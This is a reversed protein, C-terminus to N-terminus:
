CNPIPYWEWDPILVSLDLTGEAPVRIAVNIRNWPNNGSRWKWRSLADGSPELFLWLTEFNEVPFWPIQFRRANERSGGRCQLIYIFLIHEKIICDLIASPRVPITGSIEPLAYMVEIDVWIKSCTFCLKLQVIIKTINTISFLGTNYLTFNIESKENMCKNKPHGEAWHIWQTPYITSLSTCHIIGFFCTKIQVMAANHRYFMCRSFRTKSFDRQLQVNLSELAKWFRLDLKYLKIKLNKQNSEFLRIHHKLEKM